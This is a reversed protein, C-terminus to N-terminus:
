PLLFPLLRVTMALSGWPVGVEWSHQLSELIWHIEMPFHSCDCVM